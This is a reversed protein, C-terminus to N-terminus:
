LKKEIFHKCEGVKLISSVIYQQVSELANYKINPLVRTNGLSLDKGTVVLHDIGVIELTDNEVTGMWRLVSYYLGRDDSVSGIHVGDAYGETKM